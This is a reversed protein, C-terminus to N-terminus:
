GATGTRNSRGPTPCGVSAWVSKGGDHLRVGWATSVAAVLVMGRGDFRTTSTSRLVPLAPDGDTVEIEVVGSRHRVALSEPSQTHLEANTVLEDVVLLIDVLKQGSVFRSLRAQAWQRVKSTAPCDDLPLSWARSGMAYDTMAAM